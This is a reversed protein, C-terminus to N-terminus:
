FKVSKKYELYPTGYKETLIREQKNLFLFKSVAFSIISFLIVLPASIMIGFGLMLLFLGLHTPSRTYCYPGRCFTEKSMNEKNLSQSTRQAWFILFSGSVLIGAGILITIPNTFIRLEFILDLCIGILFLVFQVSYSHALVRHVKNKHPNNNTKNEIEM